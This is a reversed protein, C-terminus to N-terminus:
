RIVMCNPLAQLKKLGAYTVQTRALNLWRLHTLGKLHELGADTVQTGDLILWQLQPLNEIHKLGADTVPTDSLYLSELRPLAKLHDLVADPVRPGYFRVSRVRSFDGGLLSLLWPPDPPDTDWLKPFSDQFCVDISGGCMWIEAVAERQESTGQRQVALWSFPIAVAVVLMLLSRVSFQFRCRFLLAVAFWLIIAVLVAAVLAVTTVVAYGKHWPLWGFRESLWPLGEAALLAVLFRGPAVHLWRISPKPAASQTEAVSM